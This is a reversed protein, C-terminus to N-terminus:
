KSYPQNKGANETGEGPALADGAHNGADDGVRLASDPAGGDDDGIGVGADGGPGALGIHVADIARGIQRGGAVVEGHRGRSELVLLDGADFQRHVWRASMGM